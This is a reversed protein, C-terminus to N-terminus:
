SLFKMEYPDYKCKKPKSYEDNQDEIYVRCDICILRFECNKCVSINQKSISWIKRFNLDRAVTVLSNKRVHGYGKQSSPCNKIQGAKDVSIKGFLCSNHNLNDIVLNLNVTFLEPEVIGCHTEDTVHSLTYIIFIGESIEEYKEENASFITVRKLRTFIYFLNLYDDFDVDDRYKLVVEITRAASKKFKRLDSKIRDLRPSFFYRMEIAECELISLENSIKSLPHDSQEDFDIISNSIETAQIHKLEIPPFSDFLARNDFFYGCEKEVLLNFWSVIEDGYEDSLWEVSNHELTNGIIIDLISNPLIYYTGRQVDCITSRGIGRVPICCSFLAFYRNKM